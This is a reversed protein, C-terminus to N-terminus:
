LKLIGATFAGREFLLKVIWPALWWSIILTVVGFVIM